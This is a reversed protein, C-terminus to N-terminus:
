GNKRLKKLYTNGIMMSILVNPVLLEGNHDEYIKQIKFRNRYLIM